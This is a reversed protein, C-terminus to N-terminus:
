LRAATTLPVARQPGRVQHQKSKPQTEFVDPWVTFLALTIWIPLLQNYSTTVTIGVLWVFLVMAYVLNCNTNRWIRVLYVSVWAVAAAGILGAEYIYTLLVSWVADLGYQKLLLNASLGNGVGLALTALDTHTWIKFGMILSNSRDQWSENAGRAEAVRDGVALYTLWIALPLVIGFVFMTVLFNWVSARANKLWVLGFVVVIALTALAHGSRSSIILLLAGIAAVSFLAKQWRAPQFAFKVLGCAEAMWILVFPALSSSMASPESFLGFPRQVYRVLDRAQDPVSLFSPNLYLFLLPFEGGTLFVYAQWLGVLLHIITACAIGTFIQLSFRPLYLQSVLLTMCSMAWVLMTKICIEMGAQQVMAVKVASLVLPVQIVVYLFFPRKRWSMFFVPIILLFCLANGMQVASNGGAPIAPYPLFGLFGLAFAALAALRGAPMAWNAASGRREVGAIMAPAYTTM